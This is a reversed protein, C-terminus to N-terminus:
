AATPPSATDIMAEWIFTPISWQAAENMEDTAHRMARIAVRASKLWLERGVYQEFPVSPGNADVFMAEAVRLEMETPERTM